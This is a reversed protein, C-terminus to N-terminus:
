GTLLSERVEDLGDIDHVDGALFPVRAVPAPKVREVLTAFYSEEREAIGELDQLNAVLSTLPGADGDAEVAPAKGFRPFLRNVILGQVEINSEHLKRAFYMAEHVADERPAAVLLFATSPESFRRM